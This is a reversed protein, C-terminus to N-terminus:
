NKFPIDNISIKVSRRSGLINLFIDVRSKTPMSAIEVLAGKLFGKKVMVEQGIPINKSIPNKRSLNEINRINNIEYNTLLSFKNGFKLIDKIGKTYKLTSYNKTLSNVFIYGPFLVEEIPSSNIKKITIKPLYFEFNQNILNSEVRKVENIKYLVILWKKNM